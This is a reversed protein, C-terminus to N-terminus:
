EKSEEQYTGSVAGEFQWSRSRGDAKFGTGVLVSGDGKKLLVPENPLGFLKKQSNSWQLAKSEVSLDESKIVIRVGDTFNADSTATWFQAVGATGLAEPESAEKSFQEFRINQVQLLRKKEYRDIQDAQLHLSITGDTVRVYDVDQMVLDPKENESEVTSSYDFSCSLLLLGVAALMLLVRVLPMSIALNSPPRDPNGM